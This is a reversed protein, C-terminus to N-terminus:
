SCERHLSGRQPVADGEQRFTGATGVRIEDPTQELGRIEYGDFVFDVQRLKHKFTRRVPYRENGLEVVARNEVLVQRWIDIVTEDFSSKVLRSHM